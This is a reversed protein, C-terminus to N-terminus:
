HFASTIARLKINMILCHNPSNSLPDWVVNGGANIFTTSNATLSAKVGTYSHDSAMLAAQTSNTSDACLASVNQLKNDGNGDTYGDQGAYNAKTNAAGYRIVLTGKPVNQGKAGAGLAFQTSLAVAALFLAIFRSM